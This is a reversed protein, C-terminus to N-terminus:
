VVEVETAQTQVQLVIAPLRLTSGQTVVIGTQEITRLSPASITVSYSGPLVSPFDFYGTNNTVSARLANTAENKLVVKAAPVVAGTADTVTAGISGSAFQAFVPVQSVALAAILLGLLWFSRGPHAHRAIVSIPMQDPKKMQGRELRM